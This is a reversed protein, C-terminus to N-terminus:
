SSSQDKYWGTLTVPLLRALRTMVTDIVEQGKQKPDSVDSITDLIDQSIASGFRIHITKGSTWHALPIVPTGRKLVHEIFKGAKYDGRALSEQQTGEPCIGIHATQKRLATLADLIPSAGNGNDVLIGSTAVAIQEHITHVVYRSIRKVLEPQNGLEEEKGVTQLFRIPKGTKEHVYYDTLIFLSALGRIPGQITHNAVFVCAADGLEELNNLGEAEFSYGDFIDIYERPTVPKGLLVDDAIKKYVQRGVPSLPSDSRYELLPPMVTRSTQIVIHKSITEAPNKFSEKM